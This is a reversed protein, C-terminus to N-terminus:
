DPYVLYTHKTIWKERAIPIYFAYIGLTIVTLLTWLLGRGLLQWGTGDFELRYGNLYTHRKQWRLLMCVVWPTAIGLTVIILLTALLCRGVFGWFRGTFQSGM